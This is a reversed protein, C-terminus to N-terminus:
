VKWWTVKYHATLGDVVLAPAVSRVPQVTLLGEGVYFVHHGIVFSAGPPLQCTLAVMGDVHVGLGRSRDSVTLLSGSWEVDAHHEAVDVGALPIDVPGGIRGVKFVRGLPLRWESGDDPPTQRHGPPSGLHPMPQSDPTPASPLASQSPSVGPPPATSLALSTEADGRRVWVTLPLSTQELATGRGRPLVQTGIRVEVRAEDAPRLSWVAAHVLTFYVGGGSLPLAFDCGIEAGFTWERDPTIEVVQGAADSAWVSAVTTTM